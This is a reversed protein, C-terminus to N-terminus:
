KLILHKYSQTVRTRIPIVYAKKTYVNVKKFIFFYKYLDSNKVTTAQITRPNLQLNHLVM